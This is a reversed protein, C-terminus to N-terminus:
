EMFPATRTNYEIQEDLIEAQRFRLSPLAISDSAHGPAEMDKKYVRM